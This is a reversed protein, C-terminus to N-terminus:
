TNEQWSHFPWPLSKHFGDSSALRSGTASMKEETKGRMVENTMTHHMVISEGLFGSWLPPNSPNLEEKHLGTIWESQRWLGLSVPGNIEVPRASQICLALIVWSCLLPTKNTLLHTVKNVCCMGFSHKVSAIICSCIFNHHLLIYWFLDFCISSSWIVVTDMHRLDLCLTKWLRLCM